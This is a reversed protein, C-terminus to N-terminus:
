APRSSAFRKGLSRRWRALHHHRYSWSFRRMLRATPRPVVFAAVDDLAPSRHAPNYVLAM